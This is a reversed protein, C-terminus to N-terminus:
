AARSPQDLLSSGDTDLTAIRTMEQDTLEIDFVDIDEAIRDAGVSGPVAAVGRQLLWRLVIQTIVSKGHAAAIGTLLRDGSLADRSGASPGSSQVQVGRERMLEHYDAHQRYPHTEVQNVAPTIGTRDILDVLRDPSFDSVGVARM